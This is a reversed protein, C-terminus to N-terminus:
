IEWDIEKLDQQKLLENAKSFHKCGFFGYGASYPSPHSATLIHHKASDILFGKEHAFKGWLLFVIGKRKESLKKITADTFQEWGINRHSAAQHAKVTLIANLLFVGQEALKELNGSKSIPIGVDNNIEKFINVLSPPPPIGDPVSFCLGHAQGRGHYPDQGLIVVKVEDFGTKNYANFILEGDPYITNNRQKEELLFKKIESFYSEQFEEKLQNKWSDEIKPSVTSTNSSSDEGSSENRVIEPPDEFLTPQNTM